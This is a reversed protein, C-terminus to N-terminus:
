SAEPDEDGAAADESPPLTPPWADARLVAGDGVVADYREADRRASRREWFASVGGVLALGLLGLLAVLVLLMASQAAAIWFVLPFGLLDVPGPMGLRAPWDDGWLYLVVATLGAWVPLVGIIAVACGLRTWGFLGEPEPSADPM